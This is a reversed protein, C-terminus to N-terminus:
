ECRVASRQVAAIMASRRWLAFLTRARRSPKKNSQWRFLRRTPYGPIEDDEAAVDNNPKEGEDFRAIEWRVPRSQRVWLTAYAPVQGGAISLVAPYRGPPIPVELAPTTEDLWLPDWAVIRGSTIILEGAHHPRLTVDGYPGQVTVGDVLAQPLLETLIRTLYPHATM